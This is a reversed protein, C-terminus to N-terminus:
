RPDPYLSGLYAVVDIMEALTLKEVVPTMQKAAEGTRLGNRFALLQRLLYTPSRGALPPIKDTGM